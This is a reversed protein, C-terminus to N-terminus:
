KKKLQWYIMYRADHLRYFPILELNKYKAPSILEPAVFTQSKGAVPKLYTALNANETQLVPM